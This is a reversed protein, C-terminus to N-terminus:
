SPDGTLAYPYKVSSCFCRALLTQREIKRFNKLLPEDAGAMLFTEGAVVADGGRRLISGCSRRKRTRVPNRRGPYFGGDGIRFAM